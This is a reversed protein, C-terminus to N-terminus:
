AKMPRGTWFPRVSLEPNRYSPRGGPSPLKKAFSANLSARPSLVGLCNPGVIRMGSYKTAHRCIEEELQIGVAGTERFGASLILVAPVGADGCDIVIQPVTAAPTCIIALDIPQHIDRVSRYCPIGNLSGYKPNVPYIPYPFSEGVLNELLIKGVSSSKSSAGIVAISRPQFLRNLNRISM